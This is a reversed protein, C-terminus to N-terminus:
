LGNLKNTQAVLAKNAFRGCSSPSSPSLLKVCTGSESRVYGKLLQGNTVGLVLGCFLWGCSASFQLLSGAHTWPCAVKKVHGTSGPSGM